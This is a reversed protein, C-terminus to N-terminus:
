AGIDIPGVLLSPSGINGYFRLDEGSALVGKFFGLINGSIVAEKVPYRVLGEDVWLGSVGISFDGSVPNAMHVGMADTIVLGTGLSGALDSVVEKSEIYLNTPGVSPVGSFDGRIANGTSSVNDKKATYTNYMFGELVGAKILTKKYTPVGEDDVPKTGLRGRLTGDDIISLNESIVMQGVKGKLLSKGKQVADSSLLSAFIRLFDVAVQAELVIPAKKANLRKAGLLRVAREAATKGVAEFSIDSLFRSGQFEWGMQSDGLDEAMVTVYATSSTTPYRFGIGKSNCISTESSSFSVGAKRLRKIRRDEISAREILMAKDIADEENIHVIEPDYIRSTIEELGKQHPASPLDLFEDRETWLSSQIATELVKKLDLPDRSYSFGLRGQKLVRLSYGTSVSSELAEVSGGKVEVSLTKSTKYYVEAQEAGGRLALDLLREMSLADTRM